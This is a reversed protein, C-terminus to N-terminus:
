DPDPSPPTMLRIAFRILAALVYMNAVMLLVAYTTQGEPTSPKWGFLRYAPTSIILNTPTGAVTVIVQAGYAGMNITGICIGILVAPILPVLVRRRATLLFPISM